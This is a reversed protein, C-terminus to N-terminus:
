GTRTNSIISIQTAIPNKETGLPAKNNREYKTICKNYRINHIINIQNMHNNTFNSLKIINNSILFLSSRVLPHNQLNICYILIFVM